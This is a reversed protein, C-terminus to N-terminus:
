WDIKIRDKETKLTWTEECATFQYTFVHSSLIDKNTQVWLKKTTKKNNNKKNRKAYSDIIRM